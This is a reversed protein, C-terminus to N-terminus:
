YVGALVLEGGGAGNAGEPTAGSPKLKDIKGPASLPPAEPPLQEPNPASIFLLGCYMAWPPNVPIEDDELMKVGSQSTNTVAGAVPGVKM